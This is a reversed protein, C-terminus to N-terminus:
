ASTTLKWFAAVLYLVTMQARAAPLFTAEVRGTLACAIFTIEIVAAWCMHDWVQPMWAVFLAVNAAHALLLVRPSPVGLSLLALPLRVAWDGLALLATPYDGLDSSLATLAALSGLPRSDVPGASGLLGAARLAKDAFPALQHCSWLRGYTALEVFAHPPAAQTRYLEPRLDRLYDDDHNALAAGGSAVGELVVHFLGSDAPSLALRHEGQPSAAVSQGNFHVGDENTHESWNAYIVHVHSEFARVRVIPDNAFSYPFFNATPVIVLSAGALALSRVAEPFEVDYCILMGCRVGDCLTFVPGIQDGPAFAAVEADGFLHTKRYVSAITGDAEIAIASNYTHKGAHEYFGVVLAIGHERAVHRVRDLEPGHVRLACAATSTALLRYGGLFLEPFILLQAGKRAASAAASALVDLAWEVGSVKSAPPPTGQWLAVNVPSEHGM